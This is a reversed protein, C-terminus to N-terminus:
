LSFSTLYGHYQLCWLYRNACMECECPVPLTPLLSRVLHCVAQKVLQLLKVFTRTPVAM